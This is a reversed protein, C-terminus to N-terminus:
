INKQIKALLVEMQSGMHPQGKKTKKSLHKFNNTKKEKYASIAKNRAEARVRQEENSRTKVEMEKKRKKQAKSFMSVNSTGKNKLKTELAESQFNKFESKRLLKKYENKTKQTNLDTISINGQKKQWLVRKDKNSSM